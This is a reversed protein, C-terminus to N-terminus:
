GLLLHYDCFPRIRNVSVAPPWTLWKQPATQGQQLAEQSNEVGQECLCRHICGSNTYHKTDQYLIYVQVIKAGKHCSVM